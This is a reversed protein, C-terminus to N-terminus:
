DDGAAMDAEHRKRALAIHGEDIDMGLAREAGALMAATVSTASGCTPDLMRSSEDCVLRFFHRLVPLAKQSPHVRQAQRKAPLFVADAVPRVVKLDGRTCYLASEYISRPERQTDATQGVNDSKVWILPKPRVTWGQGALATCTREYHQMSFWFLMHASESIIGRTQARGLTDILHWYVDESDDYVEGEALHITRQSAKHLGIGYPFDCHLLNFPVDSGGAAVFDGFDFNHIGSTPCPPTPASPPTAPAQEEHVPEPAKPEAEKPQRSLDAALRDRDAAARREAQRSLYLRAGTFGDYALVQANGEAVARGVIVRDSVWSESEGIRRALEAAALGSAESYDFVAKAEDQWRLGQRRLNETLEVIPAVGADGVEMVHVPITTFGLERCAALRRAGAIVVNYEDVTIPNILGHDRISAMLGKLDGLESRQRGDNIFIVSDIPREEIRM